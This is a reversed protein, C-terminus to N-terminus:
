RQDECERLEGMFASFSDSVRRPVRDEDVYVVAPQGQRGCSSYDLMVTDDGGSPTEFLVVGVDPYDWEPVLIHSGLTESDIGWVGGVGRLAEVAFHDPAWSTPFTTYFCQRRLEGGNRLRLLKVYDRPLKYGLRREAQAVLEATLAPGTYYDGEAFVDVLM